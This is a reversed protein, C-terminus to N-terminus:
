TELALKSDAKNNELLDSISRLQFLKLIVTDPDIVVKM